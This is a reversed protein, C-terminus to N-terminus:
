CHQGAVYGSAFSWQLNFGGCPGDIDIVEGAFFLGSMVRSQMTKADMENRQVGGRTIMARDFGYDGTVTLPTQEILRILADRVFGAQQKFSLTKSAGVLEILASSVSFPLLQQMADILPLTAHMKLQEFIQQQNFPTMKILLPVEGYKKLLPTIERSFDLVVPGRIGEKTFILDGTAQLKKAEKLAIRMQVQAMTDARCDAVWSEKVKLPTMAPYLPTVTHGLSTAFNFGDGHAGLSPYGLAGTAVIVRSAVMGGRKTSIDFGQMTHQLATVDHELWIDVEQAILARQLATVITEANHTDPFVRFGDKSITEVGIEALFQRLAVSDFQEIASRMFHSRKGFRELYDATALTNTVNCRGGGTAKLKAAFTALKEVIAVRKYRKKAEFAAMCGAAGSGIVVM